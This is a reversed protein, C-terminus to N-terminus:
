LIYLSYGLFLILAGNFISLLIHHIYNKNTKFNQYMCYTYFLNLVFLVSFAVNSLMKLGHVNLM